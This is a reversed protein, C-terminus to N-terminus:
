CSKLRPLIEKHTVKQPCAKFFIKNSFLQILEKLIIDAASPNLSLTQNISSFINDNHFDTLDSWQSEDNENDSCKRNIM